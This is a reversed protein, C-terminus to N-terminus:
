EIRKYPLWMKFIEHYVCLYYQLGVDSIWENNNEFDNEDESEEIYDIKDNERINRFIGNLEKSMRYDMVCCIDVKIMSGNSNKYLHYIDHNMDAMLGYVMYKKYMVMEENMGDKVGILSYCSTKMTNMLLDSITISYELLDIEIIKKNEKQFCRISNNIILGIEEIEEISGRLGKYKTGGSRLLSVCVFINKENEKRYYGLFSTGKDLEPVTVFDYKCLLQNQHYINCKGKEIHLLCYKGFPKVYYYDYEKKLFEDIGIKTFM